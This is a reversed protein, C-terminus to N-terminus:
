KLGACYEPLLRKRAEDMAINSILEVIAINLHKENEIQEFVLTDIETQKTEDDKSEDDEVLKTKTNTLVEFDIYDNNDEDVEDYDPHKEKLLEFREVQNKDFYLKMVFNKNKEGDLRNRVEESVFKTEHPDNKVRTKQSKVNDFPISGFSLCGDELLRNCVIAPWEYIQYPKTNNTESEHAWGEDWSPQTNECCISPWKTNAQDIKTGDTYVEGTVDNFCETSRIHNGDDKYETIRKECFVAHKMCWYIKYTAEGPCPKILKIIQDIRNRVLNALSKFDFSKWNTFLENLENQISSMKSNLDDMAKTFDAGVKEVTTSIKEQETKIQENLATMQAKNMDQENRALEAQLNALNAYGQQMDSTAIAVNNRQDAQASNVAQISNQIMNQANQEIASTNRALAEAGQLQLSASLEATAIASQIHQQQLQNIADARRDTETAISANGNKMTDKNALDSASISSVKMNVEKVTYNASISASDLNLIQAVRYKRAKLRKSKLQKARERRIDSASKHAQQQNGPM